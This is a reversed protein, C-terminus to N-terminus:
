LYKVEVIEFEKMGNPTQVKVEDGEMKGLLARAIPSEISIRSEQISAETKGVICYTVDDDSEIDRLTVTAGFVVKEEKITAPDIVHASAILHEVERIQFELQGQREKAASYEANESLDGHARAEEIDRINKPREVSKLHKLREELMKKGRPTIPIRTM